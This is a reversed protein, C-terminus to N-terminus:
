NYSTGCNRRKKFLEKETWVDFKMNNEEAFKRGAELKTQIFKDKLMYLRIERKIKLKGKNKSTRGKRQHGLIFRRREKVFLNCKGCECLNM